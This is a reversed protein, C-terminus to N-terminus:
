EGAADDGADRVAAPERAADVTIVSDRPRLAPTVGSAVPHKFPTLIPHGASAAPLAALEAKSARHAGAVPAGAFVLVGLVALGAVGTALGATVAFRRSISLM